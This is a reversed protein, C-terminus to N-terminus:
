FYHAETLNARTKQDLHEPTDFCSLIESVETKLSEVQAQGSYKYIHFLISYTKYQNEEQWANQAQYLLNEEPKVGLNILSDISDINNRNKQKLQRAQAKINELESFKLLREAQKYYIKKDALVAVEQ